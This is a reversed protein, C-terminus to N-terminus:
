SSTNTFTTAIAKSYIVVTEHHFIVKIRPSSDMTNEWQIIFSNSVKILWQGRQVGLATGSAQSDEWVWYDGAGSSANAEGQDGQQAEGECQPLGDKSNSECESKGSYSHSM